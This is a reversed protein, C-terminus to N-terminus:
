IKTKLFAGLAKDLKRIHNQLWEVVMYNTNVVLHVGTGEKDFQAKLESFNQMFELHQAKHNEYGSYDYKKMFKEEASFHTTVYDDLFLIVKMVEDRGKGRTCANLLNDIRRFLEKHQKDIEGVGTALDDTWEVPM